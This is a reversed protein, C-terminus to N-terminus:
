GTAILGQQKALYARVARPPLEPHWSRFESGSMGSPSRWVFPPHDVLPLYTVDWGKKVLDRGMDSLDPLPDFGSSRLLEYDAAKHRSGHCALCKINHHLDGDPHCGPCPLSPVVCWGCATVRVKGCEM